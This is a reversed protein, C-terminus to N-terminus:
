ERNKAEAVILLAIVPSFWVFLFAVWFLLSM